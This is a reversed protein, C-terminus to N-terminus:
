LMVPATGPLLKHGTMPVDLLLASILLLLMVFIAVKFLTLCRDAMKEATHPAMDEVVQNVAKGTQQCTKGLNCHAGIDRHRICKPSGRLREHNINLLLRFNADLCNCQQVNCCERADGVAKPEDSPSM